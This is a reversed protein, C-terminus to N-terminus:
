MTDTAFRMIRWASSKSIDLRQSLAFAHEQEAGCAEALALLAVQLPEIATKCVQLFPESTSIPRRPMVFDKRM